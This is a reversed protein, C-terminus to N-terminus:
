VQIGQNRLDDVTVIQIRGQYRGEQRYRIRYEVLGQPRNFGVDIVSGDQLIARVSEVEDPHKIYM